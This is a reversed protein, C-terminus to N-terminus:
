VLSKVQALHDSHALLEKSVLHDLLDVHDTHAPPVRSALLDMHALSVRSVLLDTLTLFKRLVTPVLHAVLTSLLLLVKLVSAMLVPRLTTL